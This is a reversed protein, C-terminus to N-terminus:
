VHGGEDNKVERHCAPRMYKVSVMEEKAEQSVDKGDVRRM